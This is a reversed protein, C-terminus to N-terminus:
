TDGVSLKAGPVEVPFYARTGRGMERSDLNGGVRRPPIVSYQGPEALAGRHNRHLAADARARRAPVRRPAM